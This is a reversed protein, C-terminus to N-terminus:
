LPTFLTGFFDACCLDFWICAAVYLMYVYICHHKCVDCISNVAKVSGDSEELANSMCKLFTVTHLACVKFNNKRLYGLISSLDMENSMDPATEDVTTPVDEMETQRMSSM